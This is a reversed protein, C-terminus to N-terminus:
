HLLEDGDQVAPPIIAALLSKTAEINSVIIHRKNPHVTILLKTQRDLEEILIDIAEKRDIGDFMSIHYISVNGM